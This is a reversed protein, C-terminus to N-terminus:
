ITCVPRDSHPSQFDDETRVAWERLLNRHNNIITSYEPDQILNRMEGPDNELDVLMEKPNGESYITYKYQPTIVARGSIGFPSGFPGFETEAATHTRWQHSGHAPIHALSLGTRSDPPEAGAASCVTAYLDLGTNVIYDSDTIGAPGDPQAIILPVRVSEEYLCQKQNWRHSGGGDGHDSSFIVVTNEALGAQELEDMIGGVIRDALETVRAYQWRFQRWRGEDWDATPHMFPAKERVKELVSPQLEPIEFNEPLEPCHEPPPVEGIDGDPLKQDRAAQCINHPNMISVTLYFPRSRKKSFYERCQAILQADKSIGVEKWGHTEEDAPDIPQHWKGFYATDYGCDRVLDAIWRVPEAQKDRYSFNFNVGFQHPYLGTSMAGRSPICLPQTCYARSFMVGREALADMAPTSIYSTGACSMM